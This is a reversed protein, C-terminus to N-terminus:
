PHISAKGFLTVVASELSIEIMFHTQPDDGLQHLHHLPSSTLKMKGGDVQIICNHSLFWRSTITKRNKESFFLNHHMIFTILPPGGPGPLNMFIRGCDIFTIKMVHYSISLFTSEVHPFM